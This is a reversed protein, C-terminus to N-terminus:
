EYELLSIYLFFLTKTLIDKDFMPLIAFTRIFPHKRLIMNVRQPRANIQNPNYYICLLLCSWLQQYITLRKLHQTKPINLLIKCGWVVRYLIDSIWDPASTPKIWYVKTNMNTRYTSFKFNSNIHRNHGQINITMSINSTFRFSIQKM